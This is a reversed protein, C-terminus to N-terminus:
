TPYRDVTKATSRGEVLGHWYDELTSGLPNVTGMGTVVVRRRNGDRTM